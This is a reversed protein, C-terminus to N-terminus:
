PKNLIYYRPAKDYIMQSGCPLESCYQSEMDMVAVCAPFENVFERIPESHLGTKQDVYDRAASDTISPESATIIFTVMGTVSGDWIVNGDRDMYSSSVVNNREQDLIWPKRAHFMNKCELSEEAPAPAVSIVPYSWDKVETPLSKTEETMQAEAVMQRVAESATADASRTDVTPMPNLCIFGVVSVILVIILIMNGKQTTTM